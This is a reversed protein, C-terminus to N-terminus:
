THNQKCSMEYEPMLSLSMLFCTKQLFHLIDQILNSYLFNVQKQIEVPYAHMDDITVPPDKYPSNVIEVFKDQFFIFDMVSLINYLDYM